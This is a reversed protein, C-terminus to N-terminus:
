RDDPHVTPFGAHHADGEGKVEESWLARFTQAPHRLPEVALNEGYAIEVGPSVTTANTRAQYRSGPKWESQLAVGCSYTAVL